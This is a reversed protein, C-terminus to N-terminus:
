KSDLIYRKEFGGNKNKKEIRVKEIESDTIEFAKMVEVTLEKLDAFEEVMHERTDANKIETAEEVLKQLAYSKFEDNDIAVHYSPEVKNNNRIHEPIRDRILKPLKVEIPLNTHTFNM